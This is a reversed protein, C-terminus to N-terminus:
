RDGSRPLIKASFAEKAERLARTRLVWARTRMVCRWCAEYYGNLCHWCVPTGDYPEVGTLWTAAKGKGLRNAARKGLRPRDGFDRYGTRPDGCESAPITRVQRPVEDGGLGAAFEEGGPM